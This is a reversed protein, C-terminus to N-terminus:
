DIYYITNFTTNIRTNYIKIYFENDIISDLREKEQEAKELSDFIGVVEKIENDNYSYLILYYIM